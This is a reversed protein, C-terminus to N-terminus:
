FVITHNIEKSSCLGRRKRRKKGSKHFNVIYFVFVTIGDFIKSM